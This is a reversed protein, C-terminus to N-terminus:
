DLSATAGVLCAGSALVPATTTMFGDGDFQGLVCSEGSRVSFLLSDVPLGISTRDATIQLAELPIGAATLADVVSRGAPIGGASVLPALSREVLPRNAEADGAPDFTPEPSATPAPETPAPPTSAPPSTPAGSPRPSPACGALLAAIAAAAAIVASARRASTRM